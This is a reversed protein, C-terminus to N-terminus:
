KKEHLFDKKMKNSISLLDKNSLLSKSNSKFTIHFIIKLLEESNFRYQLNQLNKYLISRSSLNTFITSFPYTTDKKINFDVLPHINYNLSPYIYRNKIELLGWVYNTFIYKDLLDSTSYIRFINTLKNLSDKNIKASKFCRTAINEHVINFVMNIDNDYFKLHKEYQLDNYFMKHTLDYFTQDVYLNDTLNQQDTLYSQTDYFKDYDNFIKRLDNNHERIVQLINDQNIENELKEKIIINNVFSFCDSFSIKNLYIPYDFSISKKYDTIKSVEKNQVTGLILVYKKLKNIYQILKKDNSHVLLLDDILIIKKSDCFFSTITKNNIFNYLLNKLYDSNTNNNSCCNDCNLTICEINPLKSIINCITTKGSSITGVIINFGLKNTNILNKINCMQIYNSKFDNFNNPSYKQLLDM